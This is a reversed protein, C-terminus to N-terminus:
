AGCGERNDRGLHPGSAARYGSPAEAGRAGMMPPQAFLCFVTFCITSRIAIETYRQRHLHRTQSNLWQPERM